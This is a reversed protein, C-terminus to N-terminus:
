KLRGQRDRYEM